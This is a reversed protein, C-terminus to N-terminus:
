EGGHWARVSRTRSPMASKRVTFTCHLRIGSLESRSRGSDLGIRPLASRLAFGDPVVDPVGRGTGTGGTGPQFFDHFLSFPRWFAGRDNMLKSRM